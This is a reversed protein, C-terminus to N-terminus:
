DIQYFWRLTAFQTKYSYRNHFGERLPPLVFNTVNCDETFNRKRLNLSQKTPTVEMQHVAVSSLFKTSIRNAETISESDTRKENRASTLERV